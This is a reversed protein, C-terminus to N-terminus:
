LEEDEDGEGEEGKSKFFGRVFAKAEGDPDNKDAKAVRNTPRPLISGKRKEIKSTIQKRVQKKAEEGFLNNLARKLLEGEEPVPKGSAQFSKALVHMESYVKARNKGFESDKVHADKTSGLIGSFEEGLSDCARDFSEVLALAAHASREEQFAKNQKKLELVTAKMAKWGKVVAPSYDEDEPLDPIDDEEKAETKAEGKGTLKLHKELARATGFERADEETLGAEKARALLADDIEGAKADTVKKGDEAPPEDDGQGDKEDSSADESKEEPPTEEDGESVEEEDDFDYDPSPKAEPKAPAKTDIEETSEGGM